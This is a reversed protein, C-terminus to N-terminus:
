EDDDDDFDDGFEFINAGDDDYGYRTRSIARSKKEAIKQMHPEFDILKIKKEALHTFYESYLGSFSAKSYGESRAVLSTLWNSDVSSLGSGLSLKPKKKIRGDSNAKILFARVHANKSKAVEELMEWPMDIKCVIM